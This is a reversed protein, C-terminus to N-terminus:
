PADVSPSPTHPGTLLATLLLTGQMNWSHEASQLCALCLASCPDSSQRYTLCFSSTM